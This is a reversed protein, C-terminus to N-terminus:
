CSVRIPPRERGRLTKIDSHNTTCSSCFGTHSTLESDKFIPAGSPSKILIDKDFTDIKRCDGLFRNSLTNQKHRSNFDSLLDNRSFKRLLYDIPNKM